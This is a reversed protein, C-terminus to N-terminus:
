EDSFLNRKNHSYVSLVLGVSLYMMITSSMGASFFPLTIGIVPLVRLNMGLNVIIQALMAGGVGACIYTGLLDISRASTVFIKFVVAFLMTVAAACGVFGTANGIWSFIFDNYAYPIYVTEGSFLGRGFIGGAGIAIEGLRQQYTYFDHIYDSSAWGTTNEPDLVAYIRYWQYGSGVKDSFFLVVLGAGVVGIAAVGLIYKWSLGATFLMFCAIVLFIIATGDDGQIHIIAAPVLMHLLLKALEAPENIKERVNDLHMAFTLIFSIKAFETPQLTFGGLKYWSYNSSGNGANYGLVLKGGLLEVNHLVLTPLVMGWTVVVHVPWVRALVRYDILSLSVALVAGALAGVGQKIAYSYGGMGAIGGAENLAFGGQHFGYSCLALCSFGSCVFCLALCLWDTKKMYALIPNQQM